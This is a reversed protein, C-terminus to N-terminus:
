LKQPCERKPWILLICQGDLLVPMMGYISCCKWCTNKLEENGSQSITGIPYNIDPHQNLIHLLGNTVVTGSVEEM